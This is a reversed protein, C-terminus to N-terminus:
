KPYPLLKDRFDKCGDRTYHRPIAPNFANNCDVIEIPTFSIRVFTRKQGQSAPPRRHIVYPDLRYVHRGLVAKICEEEIYRQLYLHVNHTLPDFDEPFKIPQEVYETPMRDVWIYNQEPIHTITTSFGDTHWEDDKEWTVVGHRITLYTYCQRIGIYDQSAQALNILPKTWEYEKPLQLGTYPAEVLLRLLHQEGPPPSLPQYGIHEPPNCQNFWKLSLAELARDKISSM